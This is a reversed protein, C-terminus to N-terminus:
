LFIIVFYGFIWDANKEYNDIQINILHLNSQYHQMTENMYKYFLLSSMLDDM